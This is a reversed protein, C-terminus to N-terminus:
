FKRNQSKRSCIGVVDEERSKKEKKKKKSKARFTQSSFYEKLSVRQFFTGTMQIHLCQFIQTSPIKKKCSPNSLMDNSIPTNKLKNLPLVCDLAM